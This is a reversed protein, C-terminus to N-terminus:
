ASSRKLVPWNSVPLYPRPATDQVSAEGAQVQGFGVVLQELAMRQQVRLQQMMQMM